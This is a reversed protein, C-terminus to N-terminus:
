KQDNWFYGFRGKYDWIAQNKSCDSYSSSSPQKWYKKAKQSNITDNELKEINLPILALASAIVGQVEIIVSNATRKTIGFREQLLTNLVNKGINPNNRLIHLATRKLVNYDAVTEDFYEIIEKANEEELVTSFTKIKKRM